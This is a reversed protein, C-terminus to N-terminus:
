NDDIIDSSTAMYGENNDQAIIAARIADNATVIVTLEDNKNRDFPILKVEFKNM